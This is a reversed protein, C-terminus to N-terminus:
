LGPLERRPRRRLGVVPRRGELCAGVAGHDGEAAAVPAELRRLHACRVSAWTHMEYPRRSRVWSAGRGISAERATVPTSMLARCAAGCFPVSAHPAPASARSAPAPVGEPPVGKSETTKTGSRSCSGISSRPAHARYSAAKGLGSGLGLGLGLELGVRVGVRLRLRPRLGSGPVVGGETSDAAVLDRAPVLLGAWRGGLPRAAKLGARQDGVVSVEREGVALRAEDGQVIATSVIATSVITM